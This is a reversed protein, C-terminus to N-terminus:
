EHIFCTWFRNWGRRTLLAPSVTVLTVSANYANGPAGASYEVRGICQVTGNVKVASWQVEICQLTCKYQVASCQASCQVVSLM